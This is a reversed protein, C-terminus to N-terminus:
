EVLQPVDVEYSVTYTQVHQTDHEVAFGVKSSVCGACTCLGVILLLTRM